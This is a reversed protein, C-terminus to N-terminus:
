HMDAAAVDAVVGAEVLAQWEHDDVGGLTRLVERTHSGLRPGASALVGPTRSFKPVLGTMVVDRGRNDCMRHIMERALYHPDAIMDAATYIRSGPVANDSLDALVEDADKSATWASIEADLETMNRGRAAHDAYRPDRALEPRQMAACLREFISDANAAIVVEAGDATPYVNSPAVGPLISGSRTRMVGAVAYDALTSEMMAAVAEYIAVDVEQGRGSRQREAIAALAGIVAFLSALGDGLSVGSRSPPEGPSGTTHRLVGM